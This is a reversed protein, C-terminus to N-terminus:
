ILKNGTQKMWLISCFKHRLYASFTIWLNPARPSSYILLLLLLFHFIHHNETERLMSQSGHCLVQGDLDLVPVEEEVVAEEHQEAM